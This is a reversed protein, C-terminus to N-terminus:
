KKIEKLNQIQNLSDPQHLRAQRPGQIFIVFKMKALDYVARAPLKATYIQGINATLVIGKKRLVEKHLDTLPESTKFVVSLDQDLQAAEQMTKLQLRLPADVKKEVDPENCSIMSIFFIVLLLGAQSLLFKV